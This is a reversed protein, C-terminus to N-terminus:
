RDFSQTKSVVEEQSNIGSIDKLPRLTNQLRSTGSIQGRPPRQNQRLHRRHFNRKQGQRRRRIEMRPSTNLLIWPEKSFSHILTKWPYCHAPGM